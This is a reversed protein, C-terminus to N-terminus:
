ISKPLMIEGLAHNIQLSVIWDSKPQAFRDRLYKKIYNGIKIQAAAIRCNADQRQQYTWYFQPPNQIFHLQLPEGIIWAKVVYPLVYKLQAAYVEATEKQGIKINFSKYFDCEVSFYKSGDLGAIIANSCVSLQRILASYEQKIGNAEALLGGMEPCGGVSYEHELCEKILENQM